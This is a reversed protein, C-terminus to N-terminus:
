SLDFIGRVKLDEDLRCDRWSSIAIFISLIPLKNGGSQGFHPILFRVTSCKNAQGWSDSGLEVCDIDLIM